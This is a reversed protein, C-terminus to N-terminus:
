SPRDDKEPYEREFRMLAAAHFRVASLHHFKGVPDERERFFWFAVLHHCLSAFSLHWAYGREWNREAYKKAGIGYLRADEDIVDWPLLDYRELKEGKEGGTDPDIIRVEENLTEM